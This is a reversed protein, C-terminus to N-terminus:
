VAVRESEAKWQECAESFCGQYRAKLLNVLQDEAQYGTDTNQYGVANVVATVFEDSASALSELEHRLFMMWSDKLYRRYAAKDRGLVPVEDHRQLWRYYNAMLGHAAQLVRHDLSDKSALNEVPPYFLPSTESKPLYINKAFFFIYLCSPMKMGAFEVSLGDFGFWLDHQVSKLADNDDSAFYKGIIM